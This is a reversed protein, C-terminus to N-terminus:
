GAYPAIWRLNATYHLAAAAIVLVHFAEHSSFVRPWLRPRGTVMIVVGVTYLIGGGAILAVATPGLRSLLPILLFVALWGLTLLLAISVGQHDAPFFAHHAVGVVAVAWVVALTGWSLWGDFVIVAMPTYSAAIFVFITSHDIRQMISKARARWPVSHYLASVSFLAVMAIGFLGLAIRAPADEASMILFVSGVLAGIAAGGHLLGRMPNQM